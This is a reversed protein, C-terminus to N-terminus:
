RMIEVIWDENKGDLFDAVGVEITIAGMAFLESAATIVL